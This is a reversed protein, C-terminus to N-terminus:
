EDHEGLNIGLIAEAVLYAEKLTDEMSESGTDSEMRKIDREIRSVRSATQGQQATLRAIQDADLDDWNDDIYRELRELRNKLRDVIEQLNDPREENPDKSYLGHTKANKNGTPAGV